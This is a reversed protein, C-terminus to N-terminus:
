WHDLHEWLHKPLWLALSLIKCYHSICIYQSSLKNCKTAM